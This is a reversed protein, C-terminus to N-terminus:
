FTADLQARVFNSATATGDGFRRAYDAQLKFLHGNLYLNLGAGAEQGLQAAQKVLAPDTLRTSVLRDYTDTRTSGGQPSRPGRAVIARV